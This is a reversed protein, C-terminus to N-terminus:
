PRGAGEPAYGPPGVLGASLVLKLADEVRIDLALTDRRPAFVLFGTIPNPATPILLGVLDSEGIKEPLEGEIPATLLVVQWIGREPYEVLVIERFSTGGKRIATQVLQKAGLYLRRAVPIRAVAREALRVARQGIMNRTVAGVAITFAVFFVVGAGAVHMFPLRVPILPVVRDDILRVAWVLLMITLGAPLVIALGTLFAARLRATLGPGRRRKPNRAM